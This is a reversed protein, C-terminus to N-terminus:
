ASAQHGAGQAGDQEPLRPAVMFRNRGANKAEYLATDARRVVDEYLADGEHIEAVGISVTVYGVGKFTQERTKQCLKAALAAAGELTTGPLLALFEEGGFRGVFDSARLSSKILDAFERLVADGAAHGHADNILKFHDIDVMLLALPSQQQHARALHDHLLRQAHRRNLLGTLPDTVALRRLEQEYRKQDSIDRTVGLIEVVNGQEDIHPIVQLQGTMISGDKRYYAKEGNFTPLTAGTALFHALDVFYQQTAAADEPPHIQELSQQKAEEPTIGRVREVAPSVYTITGDLAMTWIVDWANEVLLRNRRDSTALDRQTVKLRTIDHCVVDVVTSGDERERCRATNMTWITAGDPAHVEVEIQMREGPKMRLLSDVDPLSAPDVLERLARGDGVTGDSRLGVREVPPGTLFEVCLEPRTQVLAYMDGTLDAMERFWEADPVEDVSGM